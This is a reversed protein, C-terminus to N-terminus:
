HDFARKRRLSDIQKRYALHRRWDIPTGYRPSVDGRMHESVFDLFAVPWGLPCDIGLVDATEAAAVIQANSVHAELSVLQASATVFKLSAMWTKVDEASLDVGVALM